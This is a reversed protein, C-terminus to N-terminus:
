EGQILRKISLICFGEGDVFIVGLGFFSQQFNNSYNMNSKLLGRYFYFEGIFHGKKVSQGNL